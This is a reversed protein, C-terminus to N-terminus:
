QKDSKTKGPKIIKLPKRKVAKKVSDKEEEFSARVEVETQHDDRAMSSLKPANEEYLSATGTPSAESISLITHRQKIEDHLLTFRTRLAPIDPKRSYGMFRTSLVKDPVSNILRLFNQYRNLFHTEIQEKFIDFSLHPHMQTKPFGKQLQDAVASRLTLEKVADNYAKKQTQAVNEFGPENELPYENLRTQVSILTYTINMLANWPPGEWTGLLSLCVKGELYFNPNFRFNDNNTTRIEIKPPSFPYDTPMQMEFFFFGDEYPTKEPGIVVFLMRGIDNDDHYLLIGPPPAEHFVTLDAMIRKLALPTYNNSSQSSSSSHSGASGSSTANSANSLHTFM